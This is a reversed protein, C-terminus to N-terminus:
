QTSTSGVCHVCKYDLFFPGLTKVDLQTPFHVASIQVIPDSLGVALHVLDILGTSNLFYLSTNCNNDVFM